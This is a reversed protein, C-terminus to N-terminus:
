PVTEPAVVSDGGLIENISDWIQKTELQDPSDPIKPEIAELADAIRNLATLLDDCNAMCVGEFVDTAIERVQYIDGTTHDWYKWWTPAHFLGKYAARWLLSNPICAFLLCYGDTPEDWDDPIPVKM